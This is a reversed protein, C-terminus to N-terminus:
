APRPDLLEAVTHARLAPQAGDGPGSDAHEAVTRAVHELAPGLLGDYIGAFVERARQRPWPAPMLGAPVLPDLALFHRYTDMVETRARLAPAGTVAGARVRALLPSWHEVFDEYQRAIGALDWAALPDRGAPGAIQHHAARFVTVAGSRVAGLDATAEDSLAQPSIWLADYLPTFGMWRLQGRLARRPGDGSEPVSFAILTWTGDWTEARAPFGAVAAGGVALWRAATPTLRYATRRGERRAQVTERRALRSLAARASGASVGFEGLVTVIAGSPFWARTRLSYDAMLTM